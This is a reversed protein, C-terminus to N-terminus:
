MISEIGREALLKDADRYSLGFRLYWCVALVIAEAPFQFGALATL